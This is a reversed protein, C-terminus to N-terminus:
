NWTEDDFEGGQLPDYPIGIGFKEPGVQELMEKTRLISPAPVAFVVVSHGAQIESVNYPTLTENNLVLILDPTTCLYENEKISFYENKFEIQIRRNSFASRGDILFRGILSDKEFWREVEAVMGSIIQIPKGYISNEFVANMELIKQKAPLYESVVKGLRYALHLSGPIMSTRIKKGSAAFCLFHVYGGNKGIFEEVEQLTDKIDSRDIYTHGEHTGLVIPSLPIDSLHFTTMKLEPFARGMGDGDVIPLKHQFATVLPTLANVGGIEVPILAQVKKQVTSEYHKLVQVGEQGSPISEDYLITSGMIGVAAIWEDELETLAKVSITDEEGMISLLLQQVTKTNGGGGCALMKAGIALLPIDQKKIHWVM